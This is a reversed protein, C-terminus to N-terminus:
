GIADRIAERPLKCIVETGGGPAGHIQLDGGAIGARYGMIRMGMGTTSDTQRDIGQGNDSVSLQPQDGALQLRVRIRRAKGHKVANTAAEQAIRFLQTASQNDRLLVPTQCEFECDVDYWERMRGCMESLASMLGHADVDVPNMGRALKRAEQLTRRAATEIKKALSAEPMEKRMLTTVLTDAMMALGTLEQGIGDHLDNGIRRSEDAAIDLVKKELARQESIDIMAGLMRTPKGNQNGALLARDRVIAYSGDTRRFQYEATWRSSEGAGAAFADLSSLVRERDDPHLREQWWGRGINAESPRGFQGTYVENWWVKGTLLDCDWIADNTARLALSLREENIRLAEESNRRETVDRILVFVGQIPADENQDPILAASMWREGADCHIRNEITVREGALARQMPERISREFVEEGILEAVTLGIIQDRPKNHVIEYQRNVFVYRCQADIYSFLEPVNDALMRFEYEQQALQERDLTRQHIDTTTGIWERVTGDDHFIPIARFETHHFALSAANWIRCEIQFFAPSSLNRRWEQEFFQRDDPHIMVAWGWGYYQDWSQGTYRQWSVQPTVFEGGSNMSWVISSSAMVVSRYRQESERLRQNKRARDIVLGALQATQYLLSHEAPTPTQPRRFYMTLAGVVEREPSHIPISWCARIGATEAPKLYDTWSPDTCIDEVIVLEDRQVSMSCPSVGAGVPASLIAATFFEPLDATYGRQLYHGSEDLLYVSGVMSPINEQALRLVLKLVDALESDSSLAELVRYYRRQEAEFHKRETVDRIIVLYGSPQGNDTPLPTSTVEAIFSSGDKRRMAIERPTTRVTERECYRFQGHWEYEAQNAYLLSAPRGILEGPDYGFLERVSPNCFTIGCDLDSLM